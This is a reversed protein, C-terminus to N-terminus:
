PKCAKCYEGLAALREKIRMEWRLQGEANNGYSSENDYEQRTRAFELRVGQAISEQQGALVQKRNEMFQKRMERTMWENLDFLTIAYRLRSEDRWDIWSKDPLFMNSLRDNFTPLEKVENVNLNIEVGIGLVLSQRSSPDPAPGKFDNVTLRANESWELRGQASVCLASALFILVLFLWVIFAPTGVYCSKDTRVATVV